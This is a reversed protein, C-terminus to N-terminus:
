PYSLTEIRIQDEKFLHSDIKMRDVFVKLFGEEKAIFKVSFLYGNQVMKEARYMGFRGRTHATNDKKIWFKDGVIPESPWIISHDTIVTDVDALTNDFSYDLAISSFAYDETVDELFFHIGFPEGIAMEELEIRLIPQALLSPIFFTGLLFLFSLRSLQM